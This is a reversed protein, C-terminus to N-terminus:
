ASRGGGARKNEGDLIDQVYEPTDRGRAEDNLYEEAIQRPSPKGVDSHCAKSRSSLTCVVGAFVEIDGCREMIQPLFEKLATIHYKNPIYTDSPLRLFAKIVSVEEGAAVGSTEQLFGEGLLNIAVDIRKRAVDASIDSKLAALLVTSIETDSLNSAFLGDLGKIEKQPRSHARTSVIANSFDPDWDRQRSGFFETIRGATINKDDLISLVAKALVKPDMKIGMSFERGHIQQLMATVAVNKAVAKSIEKGIRPIDLNPDYLFLKAPIRIQEPFSVLINNLLEGGVDKGRFFGKVFEQWDKKEVGYMGVGDFGLSLIRVHLYIGTVGAMFLGIIAIFTSELLM